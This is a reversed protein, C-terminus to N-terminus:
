AGIRQGLDGAIEEPSADHGFTRVFEGRDDFLLLAPTHGMTYGDPAGEDEIREYYVKFAGATRELQVPTGRLGLIGEGFFAVYEALRESTDRAPDVTVFIPQVEDALDGLDDMAAGITSLGTPCVDPCNTFGFFVLMWRGRFEEDTRVRGAQDTLEFDARIADAGPDDSFAVDPQRPLAVMMAVAGISAVCVAAWLLLRIKRM